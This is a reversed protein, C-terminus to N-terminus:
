EPMRGPGIRVWPAEEGTIELLAIGIADHLALIAKYHREQPKLSRMTWTIQNHARQAESLLKAIEGERLESRRKNRRTM